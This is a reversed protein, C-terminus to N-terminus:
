TANTGWCASTGNQRVACTRAGAVTVAAWTTEAGVEGPTPRGVARGDGLEGHEGAGWCWLTHDGRVACTHTGVAVALWAHGAAVRQPTSHATSTGDGLQGYTNDGWCWLGADSRLACTSSAGASVTVWRDSGAGVRVPDTAGTLTNNGLQGRRNDGWCWLSADQRVVCQHGTVPTTVPPSGSPSASASVASASALSASAQSAAAGGDAATGASAALSTAPAPSASATGASGSGSLGGSPEFQSSTWTDTTPVATLDQDGTLHRGVLIGAVVLLAGVAVFMLRRGPVHRTPPEVDPEPAGPEVRIRPAPDDDGPEDDYRDDPGDDFRDGFRDDLGGDADDAPDGYLRGGSDDDDPGAGSHLRSRDYVDRYRSLVEYACNVLQARVPSGGRDPHARLMARRYAQAIHETSADAPAGLVDYADHLGLDAIRRPVEDASRLSM